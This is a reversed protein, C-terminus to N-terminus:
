FGCDSRLKKAFKKMWLGKWGGGGGIVQFLNKQYFDRTTPFIKDHSILFAYKQLLLIKEEFLISSQSMRTSLQKKTWLATKM